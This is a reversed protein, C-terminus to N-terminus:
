FQKNSIRSINHIDKPSLLNTVSFSSKLAPFSCLFHSDILIDGGFMYKQNYIQMMIYFYHNTCDSNIQTIIVVKTDNAYNTYIQLQIIKNKYVQITNTYVNKCKCESKFLGYNFDSQTAM